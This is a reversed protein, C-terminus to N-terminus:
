GAAAIRYFEWACGASVLALFAALPLGGLYIMVLALPAAVLATLIRKALESM